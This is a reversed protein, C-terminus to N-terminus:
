ITAPSKVATLNEQYNALSPNNTLARKTAEGMTIVQGADKAKKMEESASVTVADAVTNKDMKQDSGKEDFLQKVPLDKM